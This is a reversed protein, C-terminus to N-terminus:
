GLPQIECYGSKLKYIGMEITEQGSRVLDLKDIDDDSIIYEVTDLLEKDFDISSFTNTYKSTGSPKGDESIGFYLYESHEEKWFCYGGRSMEFQNKQLCIELDAEFSEGFEERFRDRSLDERSELYSCIARAFCKFENNFKNYSLSSYGYESLQHHEFHITFYKM